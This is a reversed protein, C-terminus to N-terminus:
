EKNKLKIPSSGEQLIVFRDEFLLTFDKNKLLLFRIKPFPFFAPSTGLFLTEYIESPIQLFVRSGLRKEIVSRRRQAEILIFRESGYHPRLPNGILGEPKEVSEAFHHIM